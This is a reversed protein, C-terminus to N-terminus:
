LCKINNADIYVKGAPDTFQKPTIEKGWALGFIVEFTTSCKANLNPIQALNKQDITYAGTEHLDQLLLKLSPYTFKLLDVDVVPDKFQAKLLADGIHHMDPWPAPPAFEHLTDPGLTSFLLLGNLQLVRHLESSLRTLNQISMFCCNSFVLDFTRDAFPLFEADACTYNLTSSVADTKSAYKVMGLALDIGIITAQPFLTQLQNTFYGTGCGLDLIRQPIIKIYALRELLRAGIEQEVYAAQDYTSAAASFAAAISLKHQQAPDIKM